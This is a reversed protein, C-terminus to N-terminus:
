FFFITVVSYVSQNFSLETLLSLNRHPPILAGCLFAGLSVLNRVVARCGAAEHSDHATKTNFSDM